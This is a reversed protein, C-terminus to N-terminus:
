ENSHKLEYKRSFRTCSAGTKFNKFILEKDELEAAFCKALLLKGNILAGTQTQPSTVEVGFGIKAQHM